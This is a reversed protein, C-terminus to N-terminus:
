NDEFIINLPIILHYIHRQLLEHKNSEVWLFYSKLVNVFFQINEFPDLSLYM